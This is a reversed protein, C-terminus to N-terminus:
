KRRPNKQPKGDDFPIVGLVSLGLYNEVDDPTRISDNFIYMIIIVACSLIFGAIGGILANKKSNPSVPAIPLNAEDVLNVADINMIDVIQKGAVERVKNAISQALYPDNNRVSIELIRTGTTSTVAVSGALQEATMDLKLDAIVTDMVYRSKILEEYDNTLQTATQLDNFTVAANAQEKNLIYVKTASQYEPRIFFMSVILVVVAAIGTSLLIIGIKQILEHFLARLDIELERNEVTGKEM